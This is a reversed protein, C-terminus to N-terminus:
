RWGHEGTHSIGYARSEDPHVFGPRSARPWAGRSPRDALGEVGEQLFRKAWKYVFRRSIGVTRAIHAIPMRDALLLIIRARKARGVSITTSRQWALLTHREEPTLDLTLSTKRRPAM